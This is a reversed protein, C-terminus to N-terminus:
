HLFPQYVQILHLSTKTLHSMQPFKFKFKVLVLILMPVTVTMTITLRRSPRWTPNTVPMTKRIGLCATKLVTMLIGLKM